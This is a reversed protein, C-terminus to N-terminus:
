RGRRSLSSAVIGAALALLSVAIIVRWDESRMAVWGATFVTFASVAVGVKAATGSLKGGGPASM